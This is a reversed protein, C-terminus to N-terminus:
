LNIHGLVDSRTNTGTLQVTSLYKPSHPHLQEKRWDLMGSLCNIFRNAFPNLVKEDVKCELRMLEIAQNIRGTQSEGGLLKRAVTRARDEGSARFVGDVYVLIQAGKGSSDIPTAIYSDRKLIAKLLCMPSFKGNPFYKNSKPKM